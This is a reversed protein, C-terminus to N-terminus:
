INTAVYVLVSTASRKLCKILLLYTFVWASVHKSLALFVESRAQKGCMKTDDNRGCVLLTSMALM